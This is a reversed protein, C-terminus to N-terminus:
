SSPTLNAEVQKNALEEAERLMTNIDKNQVLSEAFKDTLVGVVINDYQTLPSRTDAAAMKFLAAINKDALLPINKGFEQKVADSQIVPITGERSTNLQMEESVLYALVKFSADAHKTTSSISGFPTNLQVGQGPKDKFSPLTVLDWHFAAKDPHILVNTMMDTINAFMAVEGKLFPNNNALQNKQAPINGTVDYVSKITNLWEIWGDKYISAKNTKADVLSLSRQNNNISYNLNADFGRYQIGGENHTMAAVIKRTDDWTMGDKPYAVGLKDFLDKNYYLVQGNISIPMINMQGEYSYAKMSKVVNPQLKDLKFDYKQILPTMDAFVNYMKWQGIWGPLGFILDPVNGSTSFTKIAEIPGQPVEVRELTVSPFKKKLPEVLQANFAEVTKGPAFVTLTVAEQITELSGGNKAHETASQSEKKDCSTLLTGLLASVSLLLPLKTM